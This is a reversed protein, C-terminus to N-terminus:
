PQIASWIMEAQEADAALIWTTTDGSHRLTHYNTPTDWALDGPRSIIPSGFRNGAYEQFTQEFELADASTDWVTKVVM